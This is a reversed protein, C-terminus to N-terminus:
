YKINFKMDKIQKQLTMSVNWLNGQSVQGSVEAGKGAIWKFNATKYQTDMYYDWFYPLTGKYMSAMGEIGTGFEVYAIHPRFSPDHVVIQSFGDIAKTKSVIFSSFIIQSKALVEGESAIKDSVQDKITNQSSLLTKLKNQFNNLGDKKTM